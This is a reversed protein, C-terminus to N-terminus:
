HDMLFVDINMKALNYVVELDCEEEIGAVMFPYLGASEGDNAPSTHSVRIEELVMVCEVVNWSWGLQLIDFLSLHREQQQQQETIDVGRCTM